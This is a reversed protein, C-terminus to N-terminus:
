VFRQLTDDKVMGQEDVIKRLEYLLRAGYEYKNYPLFTLDKSIRLLIRLKHLALVIRKRLAKNDNYMLEVADELLEFSLNEIRQALAFRQSKPFKNITPYIWKVFDYTKQFINTYSMRDGQIFVDGAFVVPKQPRLSIFKKLIVLVSDNAFLCGINDNQSGFNRFDRNANVVVPGNDTNAYRNVPIELWSILSM